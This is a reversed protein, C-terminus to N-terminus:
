KEVMTHTEVISKNWKRTQLSAVSSKWIANPFKNVCQRIFTNWLSRAHWKQNCKRTNKHNSLKERKTQNGPNQNELHRQKQMQNGIQIRLENSINENKLPGRCWFTIGHDFHRFDGFFICLRLWVVFFYFDHQSFHESLQYMPNWDIIIQLSLDICMAASAVSYCWFCWRVDDVMGQLALSVWWGDGSCGNDDHDYGNNDHTEATEDEDINRLKVRILVM